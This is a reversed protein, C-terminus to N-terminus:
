ASDSIPVFSGRNIVLGSMTIWDPSVGTMTISVFHFCNAAISSEFRPTARHEHDPHEDNPVKKAM